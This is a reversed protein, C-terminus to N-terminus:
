HAKAAVPAPNSSSVGLIENPVKPLEVSLLEKPAAPNSLSVAILKKATPDTVYATKGDVWLAPREDQWTESETWAEMLQISGLETGDAPDFIRLKGDTTLLLAEGKPGRGLSRFTYSVGAPLSYVSRTNAVTDIISFKEPRELKADKDTKYDALVYQSDARGAQNGSRSYPDEPNTVKTFTGNKYILAGDTCGITFAGDKAIAEGHVGPCSPSETVTRGQADVVAAGTREKSDGVAVLYQNEPLPIAFGHHPKPLTITETPLSTATRKDETLKAPDYVAFSGTGDAFAAVRDNDKIVHGTHDAALSLTSLTPSTTYYHSHDGHAVSWIGTDLFTYSNGDAVVLHRNDGADSLRLFGEKPLDALLKMDKADYILVGGDYTLAVRSAAGKGEVIPDASASTSASTSQTNQSTPSNQSGCATLALSAIAGLVGARTLFNKRIMHMFFINVHYHKKKTIFGRSPGRKPTDGLTFSSATTESASLSGGM